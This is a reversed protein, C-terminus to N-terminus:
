GGVVAVLLLGSLLRIMTPGRLVLYPRPQTMIRSAAAPRCSSLWKENRRRQDKVHERNCEPPANCVCNRDSAQSSVMLVARSAIASATASTNVVAAVACSLPGAAFGPSLRKSNAM